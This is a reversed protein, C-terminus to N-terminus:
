RRRLETIAKQPEAATTWLFHAKTADRLPELRDGNLRSEGITTNGLDESVKWVFDHSLFARDIPM